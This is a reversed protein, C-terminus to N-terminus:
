VYAFQFSFGGVLALCTSCLKSINFLCGGVLFESFVCNCYILFARLIASFCLVPTSYPACFLTCCVPLPLNTYLLVYLLSVCCPYAAFMDITYALCPFFHSFFCANLQCFRGIWWIHFAFTQFVKQVGGLMCVCVCVRLALELKKTKKKENIIEGVCLSKLATKNRAVIM